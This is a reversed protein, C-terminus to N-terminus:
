DTYTNLTDQSLRKNTIEIFSPDKDCCLYRRNTQKCAVATTGSGVCNDVVLDNENTFIKVLYRFLDIPKQTPHLHGVSSPNGFELISDQFGTEDLYYNKNLKLNTMLNGGKNKRGSKIPKILKKLNLQNFTPLKKYFVLINEHKKLPMKRANQFGTPKSKVWIFEYRFMEINSMVLKSTFPQSGILVIVGHEKIIRKYQEWLKNLDILCDWELGTTGYPLDCLIMDVSSDDIECLFSIADKCYIKDLEM